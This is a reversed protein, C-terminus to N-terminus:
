FRGTVGIGVPLKSPDWDLLAVAQTFADAQDFLKSADGNPQGRRGKKFAAIVSDPVAGPPRARIWERAFRLAEKKRQYYDQRSTSGVPLKVFGFHKAKHAAHVPVVRIGHVGWVHQRLAGFLAVVRLNSEHQNEILCRCCLPSRRDLTAPLLALVADIRVTLLGPDWSGVGGARLSLRGAAIARAVFPGSGGNDHSFISYGLNELGPDFSVTYVLPM